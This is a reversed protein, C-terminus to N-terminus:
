QGRRGLDVLTRGGIGVGVARGEHPRPCIEVRLSYDDKGWECRSLAAKPIKKLTLNPFADPKICFAGCCILLSRKGPCMCSTMKMHFPWAALVDAGQPM